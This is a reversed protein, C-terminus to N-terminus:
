RVLPQLDIPVVEDVKETHIKLQSIQKWRRLFVIEVFTEKMKRLLFAIQLVIDLLDVGRLFRFVERM